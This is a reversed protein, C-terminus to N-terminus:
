KGVALCILEKDDRLYLKGNALAPHAWTEGCVKSRALERYEKPNPDLLILNGADDLILLRDDGARLLSAHYKGVREKRWLEKGTKADVCSLKAQPPLISGTVMYIHDTGVPVPTSFYCTLAGNKWVQEAAPKGDKTQLRLGVSGFTVSSALLLDGVQVPTTSSENLLDVLSYKWFLRGDAPDLSVVGQQTVFVVQREKGAGFAVPSSYSAPDKLSEWLVMGNNRDFAVISAGKGVEVLVKDGEVIPSSSIGFRLNPAGFKTLADVQWVVKGDSTNCCTLFGTAGYFYIKDGAVCPTARPGNGYLGNFDGRVYTKTWIEEGTGADYAALAEANKGAVKTHLFVKGGAVIPSSHGEGVQANWLRRPAEKWPAIKETSVANRNPGLWQPWDGAVAASAISALAVCAQLWRM